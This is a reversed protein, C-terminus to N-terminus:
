LIIDVEDILGRSVEIEMMKSLLEHRYYDDGFDQTLPISLTLIRDMERKPHFQRIINSIMKNNKQVEVWYFIESDSMRNQIGMRQEYSLLPFADIFIKRKQAEELLMKKDM